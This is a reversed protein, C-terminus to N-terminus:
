NLDLGGLRSFHEGAVGGDEGDEHGGGFGKSRGHALSRGGGGELGDVEVVRSGGSVGLGNGGVDGFGGSAEVDVVDTVGGIVLDGSGVSEDDTGRGPVRTGVFLARSGRPVVPEVVGEGVEVDVSLLDGDETNTVLLGVTVVVTIGGSLEVIKEGGLTGLNETHGALLSVVVDFGLGNVVVLEASEHAVFVVLVIQGLVAGLGPNGLELVFSEELCVTIM